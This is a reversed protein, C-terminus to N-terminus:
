EVVKFNNEDFKPIIKMYAILKYKLILAGFTLNEDKENVYEILMFILEEMEEENM